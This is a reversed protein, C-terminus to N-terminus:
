FRTQLFNSKTRKVAANKSSKGNRTPNKKSVKERFKVDVKIFKADFIMNDFIACNQYPLISHIKGKNYYLIKLITKLYPTFHYCWSSTTSISTKLTTIFATNTKRQLPLRSKAPFMVDRLTKEVGRYRFRDTAYNKKMSSQAHDFAVNQRLFKDCHKKQWYSNKLRFMKFNQLERQPLYIREFAKKELDIERVRVNKLPFVICSCSSSRPQFNRSWCTNSIRSM